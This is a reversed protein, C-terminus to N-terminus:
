PAPHIFCTKFVSEPKLSYISQEAISGEAPLHMCCGIQASTELTGVCGGAERPFPTCTSHGTCHKGM